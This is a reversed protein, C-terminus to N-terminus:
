DKSEKYLTLLLLGVIMGLLVIQLITEQNSSFMIAFISKIM